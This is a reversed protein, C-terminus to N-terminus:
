GVERPTACSAMLNIKAFRDIPETIQRADKEAVFFRADPDDRLREAYDERNGLYISWDGLWEAYMAGDRTDAPPTLPELETLMTALIATATNVAEAREVSNEAEFAPPLAAIETAAAACIPEATQAIAPDDLEGFPRGPSRTLAYIWLLASGLVITIVAVRAITQGRTRQPAPGAPAGPADTLPEDSM